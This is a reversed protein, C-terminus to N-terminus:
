QKRLWGQSYMHREEEANIDGLLLVRDHAGSIELVSSSADRQASSRGIDTLPTLPWLVRFRVGDLEWELGQRCFKLAPQEDAFILDNRLRRNEVQWWSLFPFSGYLHHVPM